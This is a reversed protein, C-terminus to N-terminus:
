ARGGRTENRKGKEICGMLWGRQEEDDEDDKKIGMGMLQRLSCRGEAIQRGLVERKMPVGKGGALHNSCSM